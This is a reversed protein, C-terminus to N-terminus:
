GAVGVASRHAPELEDARVHTYVEVKTAHIVADRVYYSWTGPDTTHERWVPVAGILDAIEEVDSLRDTLPLDPDVHFTISGTACVDVRMLRDAVHAPMRDLLRCAVRLTPRTWVYGNSM